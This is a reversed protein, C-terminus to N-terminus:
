KGEDAFALKVPAAFWVSATVSYKKISQIAMTANAAGV